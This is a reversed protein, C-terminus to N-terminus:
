FKTNQVYHNKFFLNGFGLNEDSIFVYPWYLKLAVDLSFSM